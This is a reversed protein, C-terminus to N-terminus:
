KCQNEVHHHHHVSIMMLLLMVMILLEMWLYHHHCNHHALFPFDDDGMKVDSCLSSLCFSAVMMM